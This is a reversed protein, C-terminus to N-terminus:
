FNIVSRRNNDLNSILNRRLAMMLIKNEWLEKYFIYISRCILIKGLFTISNFADPIVSYILM